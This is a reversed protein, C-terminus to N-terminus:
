MSDSFMDISDKVGNTNWDVLLNDACSSGLGANGIWGPEWYIIGTGGVDALVERISAVWSEQGAASIPISSESMTVGSCSTPWDTEVVMIPKGYTSQISSLSSRLNALTAGTNYFPYFSFGMVDVDDTTFAGQFDLVKSYWNSVSSKDWGNALHVVIKTSSSADRVGAAASHLLQSLGEYGNSSIQGAPFLMGSNIENGIQIFDAPTGNDSFQTVVDKTYDYIYRNLSDLDTPWSSPTAQKGPDAWTDSYHLDVMISMGAASARKALDLGYTLSYEDYSDSTWIRIRALNTGHNALIKEFPQTSGGDNYTQGDDELNILSSFDAGHYTLADALRCAISAATAFRTFLSM